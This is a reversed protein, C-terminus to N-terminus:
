RRPAQGTHSVEGAEGAAERRDSQGGCDCFADAAVSQSLTSLAQVVHELGRYDTAQASAPPREASIEDVIALGAFCIGVERALAIEPVLNQGLVDAGWARFMRAEAATERRPGDVGLYIGGPAM